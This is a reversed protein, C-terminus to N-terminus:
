SKQQADGKHCPWCSQECVVYNGHSSCDRSNVAYDIQEDANKNPQNGTPKKQANPFLLLNNEDEFRFKTTLIMM